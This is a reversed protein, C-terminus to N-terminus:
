LLLDAQHSALSYRPYVSHRFHHLHRSRPSLHRPFRVRRRHLQHSRQETHNPITFIGLRLHPHFTSSLFHTVLLEMRARTTLTPSGRTRVLGTMRTSRVQNILVSQALARPRHFLVFMPTPAMTFITSIFFGLVLSICPIFPLCPHLFSRASSLCHSSMPFVAHVHPPYRAIARTYM